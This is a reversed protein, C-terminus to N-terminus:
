SAEKRFGHREAQETGPAGSIRIALLPWPERDSFEAEFAEMGRENLVATSLECTGRMLVILEPTSADGSDGVFCLGQRRGRV